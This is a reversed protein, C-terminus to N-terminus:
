VKDPVVFPKRYNRTLLQNAWRTIDYQGNEVFKEAEPDIDLQPGLTLKDKSIDIWNNFLHEQLRTFAEGVHPQDKVAQKIEDPGLRQGLRYSINALHCLAGSLHGELIDAHLDGLKRSRVAKIFNAPHEGPGRQTFKKIKNDKNDYLWGGTGGAYYGNECQIINGVRVGRYHDMGRVNKKQPLGRVEFIIPVPKYDLIAIQTNATNADDDYGIRAGLSMVRPPLKDQGTAWRCIDMQHAGQNGIDGNGTPWLWHWDYHLSQRRLPTM